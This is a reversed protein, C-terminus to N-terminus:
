KNNLKYGILFATVWKPVCDASTKTSGKYSSYLLNLKESMEVGTVDNDKLINKYEHLTAEIELIEDLSLEKKM